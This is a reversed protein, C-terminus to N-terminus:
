RAADGGAAGNANPTTTVHQDIRAFDGSGAAQDRGLDEANYDMLLTDPSFESIPLIQNRGM